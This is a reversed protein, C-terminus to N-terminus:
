IMPTDPKMEEASIKGRNVAAEEKAVSIYGGGDEEEKKQALMKENAYNQFEEIKKSIDERLQGQALDQISKLAGVYDGNDFCNWFKQSVSAFSSEEQEKNRNTSLQDSVESAGSSGNTKAQTGDVGDVFFNGAMEQKQSAKQAKSNSSEKRTSEEKKGEEIKSYNHLKKAENKLEEPITTLPPTKPSNYKGTVSM